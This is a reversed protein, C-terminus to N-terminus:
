ESDGGPASQAQDGHGSATERAVDRWGIDSRHFGGLWDIRGVAEYALSRAAAVSDGLATISLVRGGTAILRGDARATGAHFV